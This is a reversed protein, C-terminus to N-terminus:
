SVCKLKSLEYKRLLEESFQDLEEDDKRQPVAVNRQSLEDFLLPGHVEEERMRELGFNSPYVTVKRM